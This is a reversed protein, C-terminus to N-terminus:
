GKIENLKKLKKKRNSRYHVYGIEDFLKPLLINVDKGCFMIYPNIFYFVERGIEIKHIIKKEILENTLRRVSRVDLHIKSALQKQNLPMNNEDVLLNMEWKLFKGLKFLFNISADSISYYDSSYELEEYYIKVFHEKSKWHQKKTDKVFVSYSLDDYGNKQLNEKIFTTLITQAKIDRLTDVNDSFVKNIIKSTKDDM